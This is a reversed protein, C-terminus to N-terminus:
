EELEYGWNILGGDLNYLSTYGMSILKKIAEESRIGTACYIIIPSDKDIDINEITSLPINIANKIHSENYEVIERVDIIMAGNNILEMARNSDITEYKSNGCATIFLCIIVLSFIKKM